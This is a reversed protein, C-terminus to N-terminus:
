KNSNSRTKSQQQKETVIKGDCHEIMTQQQKVGVVTATATATAASSNDFTMVWLEKNSNNSMKGLQYVSKTFV